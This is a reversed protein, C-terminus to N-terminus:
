GVGGQTVLTDEPNLSLDSLFFLCVFCFQGFEWFTLQPTDGKARLLPSYVADSGGWEWSRVGWFWFGSLLCFFTVFNFHNRHSLLLLGGYFM